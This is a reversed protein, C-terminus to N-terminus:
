SFNGAMPYLQLLVFNVAIFRSSSPSFILLSPHVTTQFLSSYLRLYQAVREDTRENAQESMKSVGESTPIDIKSSSPINIKSTEFHGPKTGCHSLLHIRILRQHFSFVSEDEIFFDGFCKGSNTFSIVM